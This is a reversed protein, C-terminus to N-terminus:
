RANFSSPQIKELEYTVPLWVSHRRRNSHWGELWICVAM